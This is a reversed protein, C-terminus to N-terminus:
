KRSSISSNGEAQDTMEEEIFLKYSFLILNISDDFKMEAEYCGRDTPDFEVAIQFTKQAKIMESVMDTRWEPNDQSPFDKCWAKPVFYLLFLILFILVILDCINFKIKKKFKSLIPM